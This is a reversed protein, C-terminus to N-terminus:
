KGEAPKRRRASAPNEDASSLTEKQAHHEAGEEKAEAVTGTAKQSRLEEVLAMMTRTGEEFSKVAASLGEGNFFRELIYEVQDNVSRDNRKAERALKALMQKRLRFRTQVISERREM